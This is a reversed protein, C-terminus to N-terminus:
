GEAVDRRDRMTSDNVHRGLAQAAAEIEGAALAEIIHRHETLIRDLNPIGRGLFVRSFRTGQYLTEHAKLLFPNGSLEVLARHFSWNADSFRQIEPTGAGGPDQRIADNLATLHTITGSDPKKHCRRLALTEIDIRAEAWLAFEEDTPADQVRYGVNERFTLIGDAELKALAERVPTASVGLEDSLRRINLKEGARYGGGMIRQRMEDVISGVLSQARIVRRAPAAATTM